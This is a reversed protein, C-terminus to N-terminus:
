KQSRPQIVRRSSANAAPPQGAPGVEMPDIAPQVNLKLGPLAEVDSRGTRKHLLDIDRRMKGKDNCYLLATEEVVKNEELAKLLCHDFSHWGFATSADIIEQFTKGESEGYRITERTRLNSGLVESVLLRGGDIKPVLRQSVIYRVTDSLRYRLQEEEDKTFFGLIRNITQGANITHLTTFVLHGTEAATLAIEMTERDRIEGLLIVKPAQRLASRLGQAFSYFDRGLERQSIAAVAHKHIFEIPDELTVIHIPLTHNLENVLAALTTTKGSGTAGTIFVIGNKEKGIEGFIPPLNLESLSPANPQLKRMVIAPRNKEKYINVRFRAVGEVVYSCDCSGTSGYDSLLREDGAIILESIADVFETTIPTHDEIELPTLRGDVEVLAAKGTIFLLDSIRDQSRIMATVLRDLQAGDM